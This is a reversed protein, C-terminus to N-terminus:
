IAKEPTQFQHCISHELIYPFKDLQFCGSIWKFRMEVPELVKFNIVKMNIIIVFSLKLHTNMNRPWVESYLIEYLEFVVFNHINKVHSGIFFGAGLLFFYCYWSILALEWDYLWYRRPLKKRMSSSRNCELNQM